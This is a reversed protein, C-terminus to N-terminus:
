GEGETDEPYEVSDGLPELFAILDLTQQGTAHPIAVQHHQNSMTVVGDERHLEVVEGNKLHFKVLPEKM